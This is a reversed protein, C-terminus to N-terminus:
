LVNLLACADAEVTLKVEADVEEVNLRTLTVCDHTGSQLVYNRTTYEFLTKVNTFSEFINAYFTTRVL